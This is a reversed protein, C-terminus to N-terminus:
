GFIKIGAFGGCIGGIIGGVVTGIGPCIMTGIAAGGEMGGWTCGGKAVHGAGRKAFEAGDIDGKVLRFVDKGVDVTTLAIAVPAAGKAVGGLGAKLLASETAVAVGSVTAGTAACCVTDKGTDILADSGTKEGRSFKTLNQIASIGCGVAAGTVAGRSVAKGMQGKILEGGTCSPDKAANTAEQTTLPKSEVSKLKIRDSSNSAVDPYNRKGLQDIGRKEALQKVLETQDSPVIRQMGDYKASAVEFATRTHSGCYKVQAHDVARGADTIIVDAASIPCGIASGTSARLHALGKSAADINFTAAHLEEAMRGARQEISARAWQDGLRNLRNAGQQAQRVADLSRAASEFISGNCITDSARQDNDTMPCRRKSSDLSKSSLPCMKCAVHWDIMDNLMKTKEWNLIAILVGRSNATAKKQVGISTKLGHFNVLDVFEVAERRLDNTIRVFM